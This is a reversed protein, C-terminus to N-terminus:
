PLRPEEVGTLNRILASAVAGRQRINGAHLDSGARPMELDRGLERLSRETGRTLHGLAQLEAALGRQVKEDRSARRVM